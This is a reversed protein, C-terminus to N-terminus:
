ESNREDRPVYMSEFKEASVAYGDTGEPDNFVLYDGERYCTVGEKTEIAGDSDARRAWVVATKTYVGPSVEEYTREFTDRDITYVDGANDVLWDGPKCVQWGGWKQYSFGQTELDLRVATM